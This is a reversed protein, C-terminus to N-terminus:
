RGCRRLRAAAVQDGGAMKTPAVSVAVETPIVARTSDSRPRILVGSARMMMPAATMSSTSPRTIRLTTDRRPRRRRRDRTRPMRRVRATATPNRTTATSRRGTGPAGATRRSRASAPGSRAGPRRWRRRARAPRARRRQGPGREDDAGERGPEDERAGVLEVGDLVLHPRDGRDEGRDEEHAHADDTLRRAGSDRWGRRGRRGQRHRPTM